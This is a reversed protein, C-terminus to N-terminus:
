VAIKMFAFVSIYLFVAGSGTMALLMGFCSGLNDLLEALRGGSLCACLAACLKYLLYRLGLELVPTLCICLIALLGFSGCLGRLSGAAAALAGSADSLIRGVVPLATSLVTKTLRAASADASGSVVGSVSLWLAFATTLGGLLMTCLSRMLRAATKLAGGGVAANAIALAAYGCIVPVILRVSLHLLIDMFVATSASAAAATGVAGSAAATAALVPLLVRSYDSLTEMAELAGSMYSDVDVLAAAGIAAVGALLVYSSAQGSTDAAETLSCILVVAMMVLVTGCSRRALDELRKLFHQLIRQPLEKGAADEPLADGMYERASEPLADSLARSGFDDVASAPFVLLIATLLFFAAYRM